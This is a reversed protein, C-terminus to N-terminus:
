IKLLTKLEKLLCDNQKPTGVTIRLKDILPPTEWFRVLVGREKLIQYIKKASFKKQVLSSIQVLIFNTQSEPFSFGMDLLSSALQERELKIKQWVNRAYEQDEIAATAAAISIVDCPYSNRVKHVEKLLAPQAIAYGFRLGALGYGKSMSRLILVNEYKHVLSLASASAFDVYAEDIVIAGRFNKALFDLKEILDLHGSPANPNCILILKADKTDLSAPLTWRTDRIDYQCAISRAGHMEVLVPYLSYSPEMYLVSDNEAACTRIMVSLLEDGGNFTMIWAPNVGHVKAAAERFFSASPNPYRRLQDASVARIAELVRPSPPYANENTNLKITTTDVPQEGPIYGGSQAVNLRVLHSACKVLDVKTQM